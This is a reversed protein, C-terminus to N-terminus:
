RTIRGTNRRNAANSLKILIRVPISIIQALLYFPFILVAIVFPIRVRTGMIKRRGM